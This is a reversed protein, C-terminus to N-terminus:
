KIQNFRDMAEATLEKIPSDSTLTVETVDIICNSSTDFKEKKFTVTNAKNEETM